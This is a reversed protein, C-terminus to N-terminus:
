RYGKKHKEDNEDTSRQLEVTVHHPLTCSPPRHLHRSDNGVRSCHQNPLCSLKNLLYPPALARSFNRFKGHWFNIDHHNEQPNNRAFTPPPIEFIYPNQQGPSYLTDVRPPNYSFQHRQKMKRQITSKRKGLEVPLFASLTKYFQYFDTHHHWMHVLKVVMAHTRAHTRATTVNPTCFITLLVRGFFAHDIRPVHGKIDLLRLGRGHDFCGRWVFGFWVLFFDLFSRFYGFSVSFFFFWGLRIWSLWQISFFCRSQVDRPAPCPRFRTCGARTRGPPNWKWTLMGKAQKRSRHHRHHHDDLSHCQHHHQKHLAMHWPSRECKM